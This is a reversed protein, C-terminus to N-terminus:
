LRHFIPPRLEPSYTYPLWNAIFPTDAAIPEPSQLLLSVNSLLSFCLACHGSSCGQGHLSDPSCYGHEAAAQLSGHHVNPACSTFDAFAVNGSVSFCTMFILLLTRLKKVIALMTRGNVLTITMLEIAMRAFTVSFILRHQRDDFL